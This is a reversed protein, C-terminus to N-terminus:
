EESEKGPTGPRYRDTKEIQRARAIALSYPAVDETVTSGAAIVAGEGIKVPAVLATNSGVFVRDEIVTRHKKKGDYNCTITGAGINVDEGLHADGIYSLHQVKTGRGILSNKIEVYNGIRSDSELVTGSRIRAFPGVTVNDKIRANDIESRLVVSGNGIQSNNVRTMPGVVCSEGIVTYGSLLVNPEIVTDQGIVVEPSIYATDPDQITVGNEMLIFNIREQAKKQVQALQSRNNIGHVEEHDDCILTTAKNAYGVVDTLYYEKQANDNTLQKLAESLFSGRFAYISSNVESIGKMSESLDADEVIRIRDGERVIRGYGSPDKPVFTLVALDSNGAVRKMVLEKLTASRILPVDGPLVLVEDDIYDSAVMVAHGTGLQEEQRVTIAANNVLPEVVEAGHGTVVVMRNVGAARVADLIWRIMEKGLIKHAVKPTTSKM